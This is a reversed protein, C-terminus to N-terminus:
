AESWNGAINKVFVKITKTGSTPTPLDRMDITVSKFGGASISEVAGGTSGNTTGLVENAVDTFLAGSSQVRRIRWETIDMSPSFRFSLTRYGTNTSFRGADNNGLNPAYGGTVQDITISPLSTVINIAATAETSKNGVSDYVAFVLTKSGEAAFTVTHALKDFPLAPATAETAGAVANTVVGTGWFKMTYGTTDVDTCNGTASVALTGSSAPASVSVGGPAQLDLYFNLFSAM